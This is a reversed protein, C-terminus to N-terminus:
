HVEGFPLSLTMRAEHTPGILLNDFQLDARREIQDLKACVVM